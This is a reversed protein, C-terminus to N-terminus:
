WLFPVLRKRTAAYDSYRDGLNQILAREEVRIRFVLGGAVAVTLCVLSVWNGIFLGM